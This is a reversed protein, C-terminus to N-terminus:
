SCMYRYKKLMVAPHHNKRSAGIVNPIGLFSHTQKTQKHTQGCNQRNKRAPYPPTVHFFLAASGQHNSLDFIGTPLLFRM